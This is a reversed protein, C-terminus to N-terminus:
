NGVPKTVAIPLSSAGTPNIPVLATYMEVGIFALEEFSEQFIQFDNTANLTSDRVIGINLSGSDLRLLSGAPYLVVKAVGASPWDIHAGDGQAGFLQGAATPTDLYSNLRVGHKALEEAMERVERFYQGRTQDAMWADDCWAPAQLELVVDPNMRHHNRMSSAMQGIYAPFELSGLKPTEATIAATKQAVMRDLLNTDATRAWAQAVLSSFQELQEPYIRAGLNGATICSGIADVDVETFSPCIVRQCTKAPSGALDQAATRLWVADSISSLTPPAAFKIGGRDANFTPIGSAVPRDTVGFDALGYYTTVPACVGGGAKLEERQEMIDNARQKGDSHKTHTLAHEDLVEKINRMQEYPDIASSAVLKQCDHFKAEAHAVVVREGDAIGSRQNLASARDALAIALERNTRIPKGDNSGGAALFVVDDGQAVPERDRVRIPPAYPRSPRAGAAIADPEEVPAETPEEAEAVPETPTEGEPEEAPTEPAEVAEPEPEETAEVSEGKLKDLKSAISENRETADAERASLEAKAREVDSVAQTLADDVEAQTLEGIVESDGEAIKGATAECQAIFARIDDDSLSALDEPLAPFLEM